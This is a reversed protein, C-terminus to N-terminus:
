FTTMITRCKYRRFSAVERAVFVSIVEFVGVESNSLNQVLPDVLALNSWAGSRRIQGSLEVTGVINIGKIEEYM